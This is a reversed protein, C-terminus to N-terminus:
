TASSATETNMITLHLWSSVYASGTRPSSASRDRASFYVGGAQYHYAALAASVRLPALTNVPSSDFNVVLVFVSSTTPLTDLVGGPPSGSTQTM